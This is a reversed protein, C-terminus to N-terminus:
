HVFIAAQGCPSYEECVRRDAALKTPCGLDLQLDPMWWVASLSGRPCQRTRASFSRAGLLSRSASFPGMLDGAAHLGDGHGLADRLQAGLVATPAHYM